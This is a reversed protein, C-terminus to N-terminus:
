GERIATTAQPNERTRSGPPREKRPRAPPPHARDSPRVTTSDAPDTRAADVEVVHRGRRRAEVAFRRPLRTRGVGGPGHLAPAPVTGPPRDPAARFRALEGERGVLRRLFTDARNRAPRRPGAAPAGHPNM